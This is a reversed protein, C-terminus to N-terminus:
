RLSLSSESPFFLLFLAPSLSTPLSLYFSCSFHNESVLVGNQM